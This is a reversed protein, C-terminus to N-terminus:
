SLTWNKATLIAKEEDTVITKTFAHLRLVNTAMGTRDALNNFLNLVSQRSLNQSYSFDLTYASENIGFTDESLTLDELAYCTSANLFKTLGNGLHLKRIASAWQSGSASSTVGLTSISDNVYLEFPYFGGGFTGGSQLTNGMILKPLRCQLTNSAAAGATYAPTTGTSIGNVILTDLSIIQLMSASYYGDIRFCSPCYCGGSTFYSSYWTLPNEATTWSGAARFYKLSLTFSLGNGADWVVEYSYAPLASDIKSTYTTAMNQTYYIKCYCFKTGNTSIYVGNDGVKKSTVKDETGDSWVIKAVSSSTAASFTATNDYSIKVLAVATYQYEGGNALRLPDNDFIEDIDPFNPDREYQPYGAESGINNIRSILTDLTDYSNAPLGKNKFAGIMDKRSKNVNEVFQTVYSKAM